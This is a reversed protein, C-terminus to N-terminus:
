GADAAARDPPVEEYQTCCGAVCIMAWAGGPDGVHWALTYGTEAIITRLEDATLDAATADDWLDGDKDRHITM